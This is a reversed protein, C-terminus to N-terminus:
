HLSILDEPKAVPGGPFIAFQLIANLELKFFNFNQCLIREAM